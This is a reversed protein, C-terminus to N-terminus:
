RRDARLRHRDRDATRPRGGAPRAPLGSVFPHGTEMHRPLGPGTRATADHGRGQRGECRAQPHVGALQLRVQHRLAPRHLDDPGQGEARGKRGALDDGAALRRPDAPQVLQREHHYFDVRQDFDDPLGNFDASCTLQVDSAEERVQSSAHRFDEIIAQPHIKEQIYIPVAPVELAQQGTRGQGELGTAPRAVPQPSLARDQASSKRPWSTGCNRPRSTRQAQGQPPGRRDPSRIAETSTAQQANHNGPLIPCFFQHCFFSSM